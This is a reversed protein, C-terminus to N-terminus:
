IFVEPYKEIVPEVNKQAMIKNFRIKLQKTTPGKYNLSDIDHNTRLNMSIIMERMTIVKNLLAEISTIYHSDIFSDYKTNGNEIVKSKIVASFTSLDQIYPKRYYFVKQGVKLKNWEDITM